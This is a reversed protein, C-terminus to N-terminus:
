DIKPIHNEIYEDKFYEHIEEQTAIDGDSITKYRQNEEDWFM